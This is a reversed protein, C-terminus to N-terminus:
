TSQETQATFKTAWTQKETVSSANLSCIPVAMVIEHYCKM